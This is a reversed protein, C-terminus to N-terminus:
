KVIRVRPAQVYVILPSVGGDNLELLSAPSDAAAVVNLADDL